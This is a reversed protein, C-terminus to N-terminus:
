QSGAGNKRRHGSYITTVEFAFPRFLLTRGSAEYTTTAPLWVDEVRRRTLSMRSGAHLRGVVGWGITIDELARMDLKAIQYDTEAVWMRGAFRKMWHGERTTVAADQKPTIDIALVPHGDITDRHARAPLFVAFADALLAQHRRREEAEKDQRRARAAPTEARERAAALELNRAHEADRRALEEPPLPKGAIAILRKYTRGPRDAPYVEFTRPPGVTVKGLKSIKIDQRHELYTFESLVEYDLRVAERVRRALEDPPPYPAAAGNAPAAASADPRQGGSAAAAAWGLGLGGSLLVALVARM